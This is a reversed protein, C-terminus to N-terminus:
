VPLNIKPIEPLEITFSESWSVPTLLVVTGIIIGIVICLFVTNVSMTLRDHRGFRYGHYLNAGIMVALGGFLLGFLMLLYFAPVAIM